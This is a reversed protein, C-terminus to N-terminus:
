EAEDEQADKDKKRVRPKKAEKTEDAKEETAEPSAEAKSPEAETVQVKSALHSITNRNRVRMALATFEDRNKHLMEALDEPKVRMSAAMRVIEENIEESTFSIEDQDALADLILTNRVIVEARKRLNGDYEEASLNNFKLYEDLSQKLDQQVQNEQDRRMASQQRDIMSEPVDVEAAESLAKIASERLTTDGREKANEEMQRRLEARLEDATKYQGKSMEEIKEDTPEPVVRKMLQLVEMDYRIVSCAMRKDPYDDEIKVEFSFEEALKKGVVAEAIEKRLTEVGLHITSQKKEELVSSTGDNQVHYSDYEVQVIDNPEVPRDEDLPVLEASSELIQAFAEDVEQDTVTFATREASLTSLDPLTVEPRVEFTFELDLSKGESLEGLNLKPEIILDLEYESVINDLAEQAMQEVTEKYIGGKGFYLELMKRPVHGKRFGKINAKGSLERVTKQVARDVESAEFEAKVVVVNREQSLIESKLYYLEKRSLRSSM